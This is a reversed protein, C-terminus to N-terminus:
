TYIISESHKEVNFCNMILDEAESDRRTAKPHNFANIGSVKVMRPACSVLYPCPKHLQGNKLLLSQVLWCSHPSTSESIQSTSGKCSYLGASNGHETCPLTKRLMSNSSHKLTKEVMRKMLARCGGSHNDPCMKLWDIGAVILAEPLPLVEIEGTNQRLCIFWKTKVLSFVTLKSWTESCFM